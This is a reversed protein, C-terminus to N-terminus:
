DMDHDQDSEAWTFFWAAGDFYLSEDPSGEPLMINLPKTDRAIFGSRWLAGTRALKFDVKDCGHASAAIAAFARPWAERPALLDIVRLRRGSRELACAAIPRGRDVVLFPRQKQSPSRRFRWEYFRADRVTAIQLEPRTREWLEDVRRDLEVFGDLSLGRRSPQLALRLLSDLGAPVGFPRGSVPRVYRVTDVVNRAGNQSLPTLNAPMPTGFMVEIGLQKM